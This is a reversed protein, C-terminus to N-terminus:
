GNKSTKNEIDQLFSIEMINQQIRWNFLMKNGQIYIQQKDSRPSVICGLNPLLKPILRISLIVLTTCIHYHINIVFIISIFLMYKKYTSIINWLQLSTINEGCCKMVSFMTWFLPKLFITTLHFYRLALMLAWIKWLTLDIRQYPVSILVCMLSHCISEWNFIPCSFIVM